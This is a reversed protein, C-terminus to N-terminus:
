AILEHAFLIRGASPNLCAAAAYIKYTVDTFQNFPDGKDPGRAILM